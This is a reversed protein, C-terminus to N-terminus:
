ETNTPDHHFMILTLKPGQGRSVFEAAIDLSGSDGDV